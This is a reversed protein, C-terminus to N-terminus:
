LQLMLYQQGNEIKMKNWHLPKGIVGPMSFDNALIDNQKVLMTM